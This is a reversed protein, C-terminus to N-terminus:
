SRKGFDFHLLLRLLTAKKRPQKAMSQPLKEVADRLNKRVCYRQSILLGTRLNFALSDPTANPGGSFYTVAQGNTNRPITVDVIRPNAAGNPPNRIVGARVPAGTGIRCFTTLSDM